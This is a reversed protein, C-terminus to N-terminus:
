EAALAPEVHGMGNNEHNAVVPYQCRGAALNQSRGSINHDRRESWFLRDIFKHSPIEIEDQKAMRNGSIGPFLQHASEPLV